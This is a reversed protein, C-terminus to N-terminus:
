VPLQNGVALALDAKVVQSIPIFDAFPDYGLDPFIHPQLTFQAGSAFLLVSGNPPGDKVAQAGIRGGAGVRNDVIVARGLSKQLREAILRAVADGSGGASFPYVIKLTQDQAVGQQSWFTLAAFGTLVARRSLTHM